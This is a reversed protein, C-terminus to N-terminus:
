NGETENYIYAAVADELLSELTVLSKKYSNTEQNYSYIYVKNSASFASAVIFTSNEFKGFKDNCTQFIVPIAEELSTIITQVSTTYTGNLYGNFDEKKLYIWSSNSKIKEQLALEHASNDPEPRSTIYLYSGFISAIIILLILAAVAVKKM